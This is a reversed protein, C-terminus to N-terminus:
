LLALVSVTLERRIPVLLFATKEPAPVKARVFPLDVRWSGAEEVPVVVTVSPEVVPSKTPWFTVPM